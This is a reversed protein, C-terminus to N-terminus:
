ICVLVNKLSTPAHKSVLPPCVNWFMRTCTNDLNIKCVLIEFILSINEESYIDVLKFRKAIQKCFPLQKLRALM